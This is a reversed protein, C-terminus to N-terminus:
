SEHPIDIRCARLAALCIAHAPTEGACILGPYAWYGMADVDDSLPGREYADMPVLFSALWRGGSYVGSYRDVTLIFPYHDKEVEEVAMWADAISTSYCACPGCPYWKGEHWLECSTETLNRLKMGMVREAILADLERGPKM